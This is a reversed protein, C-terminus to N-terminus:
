EYKRGFKINIENLVKSVLDDKNENVDFWKIRKDANFWTFQRKAFRRSNKKLNEKMENLSIKKDVYKIVEKYGIAKYSINDRNPYRALLNKVEEILGNELMIDVRKNIKEYLKERNQTLGIIIFNLNENEKRFNNDNNSIKKGTSEIIELARMIRHKNNRSIKQAYVYDLNKLKDYLFDLGKEDLINLYKERLTTSNAVTAFDLDYILSNIYLGSGGVIIPIKNKENITTINYLAKKQFDAVSFNEDPNVIDIMHHFIGDMEDTKIKATGIDMYKYIQMSDASIIETNMKKALKVSLDTKGIGTPGVILVANEKEM